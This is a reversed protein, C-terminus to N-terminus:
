SSRKAQVSVLPPPECTFAAAARKGYVIARLEKRSRDSSFYYTQGQYRTKPATAPDVMLGNVPDMQKDGSSKESPPAPMTHGAHPDSSAAATACPESQARVDRLAAELQDLAARLESPSNSLRATEARAMAAAIINQIVTQARLCQTLEPSPAQMNPSQHAEHQASALNPVLGFVLAMALPMHRTSM